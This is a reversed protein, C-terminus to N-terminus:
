AHYGHIEGQITTPLITGEALAYLRHSLQEMAEALEPYPVNCVSILGHQMCEGDFRGLVPQDNMEFYHLGVCNPHSIAREAYYLFAKVREEQTATSVLGSAFNREESAAIHWEGILGPGMDGPELLDLMATPDNRYCNFSCVSFFENGALEKSSLRNYRMGLNMHHPAVRGAARSPIECYRQILIDRFLILDEESQKSFSDAQEIPQRLDAFSAFQTNWADNLAEITLYRDQLFRILAEKSALLGEYALVREAPNVSDQFLWEPENTLFYGILYPNDAYPSLQTKAFADSAESYEDSFVDPFDRYISKQTRPFEQMTIVFPIKSKELFDQVREDTYSNVGVGLTNFGWRKLRATNLSVWADWWKEPGFARVMNARAFNFMKRGEGNASGNRKVFEPIESAETWCEKWMLDDPSPLWDFLEEMQDVFGHVGMRAGYCVGNSIFAFGEPDVLYWRRGDYHTHFYGTAEFSLNQWGGYKSWGKPYSFSTRANEVERELYRTLQAANRMKGPWEGLIRQGLSDVLKQGHVTMNPLQELVKLSYLDLWALDPHNKMRIRIEDINEISTPKGEVHGKFSGPYTPLFYRHSDLESLQMVMKVRVTPILFYRITLVKEEKGQHQVFDVYVTPMRDLNICLDLCLYHSSPYHLIKEADEYSLCVSGEHNPYIRLCEDSFKTTGSLVTLHDIPISINM